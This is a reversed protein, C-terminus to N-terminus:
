PEIVIAGTFMNTIIIDLDTFDIIGDGNLDAYPFGLAAVVDTPMFMFGSLTMMDATEVIGTGTVDGAVLRIERVNERSDNLSLNMPEIGVVVDHVTFDTHGGKSITMTYVGAQVNPITFNQSVQGMGLTGPITYTYERGDSNRTLVITTPNNPNFSVVTGSVDQTIPVYADILVFDTLIGSANGVIEFHLVEYDLTDGVLDRPDFYFVETLSQRASVVGLDLQQIVSGNSSESRVLLVADSAFDSANEVHAEIAVISDEGIRRELSLVLVSEGLTVTTSNDSMDSDSLGVPTIVIDFVTEAGLNAPVNVTFEVMGTTGPRLNAMHTGAPIGNVSVAVNNITVGGLNTVEVSVPLPQGIAIDWPSYIADSVMINVPLSARFSSLDNNEVVHFNEGDYDVVLFASSNNFVINFEGNSEWVGDFHEAFGGTNALVFSESWQGSEQVRALMLGTENSMGPFVVAYNSGNGLIRFGTDPMNNEAFLSSTQGGVTRVRINGNEFWSLVPSGNLTTFQPESVHSNNTLTQINGALNVLQLNRSTVYDFTPDFLNGSDTIFAVQPSGGFFGADIGAVADLNQALILEDGWVGNSLQRAIISSNGNQGFFDNQDNRVWAVFVDQGNVAIAPMSDFVYNFTLMSHDVFSNGDFRAVSIESAAVMDDLESESDLIYKTNHWAVWINNGDTSINPFFDATGDDDVPRPESWTNMNTNFVSYMLSTRNVPGRTGDDSIFVMIRQGNAEAILPATDSFVSGQILRIGNEDLPMFASNGFWQTAHSRSDLTFNGTSLDFQNFDLGRPMTQNRVTVHTNFITWERRWFLARMWFGMRGTYWLQQHNTDIRWNFSQDIAGFVGGGLFRFGIGARATITTTYGIAANPIIRTMNELRINGRYDLSGSLQVQVTIPIAGAWFQGSITPGPISRHIILTGSISAPPQGSAPMVGSVYGAIRVPAPFGLTTNARSVPTFRAENQVRQFATTVPASRVISQLNNFNNRRTNHDVNNWTGSPAGIAVNVRGSEYMVVSPINNLDINFTRGSVFPVGSIPITAVGMSLNRHELTGVTFSRTMMPSQQSLTQDTSFAIARITVPYRITIPGSAIPSSATPTRGDTTFRIQANPINPFTVQTGSNVAGGAHSMNPTPPPPVVTIPINSEASYVTPEYFAVARITVTNNLIIPTNPNFTIGNTWTPLTGDLTYRITAGQLAVFIFQTGPTVRSGPLHNGIPRSPRVLYRVVLEDSPAFGPATTVVSFTTATTIAPTTWPNSVTQATGGNTRVQFQAGPISSSFTVTGGDIVYNNPHSAVPIPAQVEFRFVVEDSPLCNESFMVARVTTNSSVSIPATQGPIFMNGNTETPTTDNTTYRIWVNGADLLRLSDPIVFDVTHVGSPFLHIDVPSGPAAIPVPLQVYYRFTAVASPLHTDHNIARIRLETNRTIRFQAIQPNLSPANTVGLPTPAVLGLTPSSENPESGDLTFHLHTGETFMFEAISAGRMVDSATLPTTLGPAPNVFDLYDNDFTRGQRPGELRAPQRLSFRQSFPAGNREGDYDQDGSEPLFAMATVTVYTGLRLPMLFPGTYEIGSNRTPITGDLTYRVSVGQVDNRSLHITVMSASEGGGTIHGTQTIPVATIATVYPARVRINVPMMVGDPTGDVLSFATANVTVNETISVTGTFIPSDETVPDNNLTYRIVVDTDPHRFRLVEAVQVRSNNPITSVPPPMGQRQPHFLFTTGLALGLGEWGVVDAYSRFFNNQAWLLNLQTNSVDLALLLNDAVNLTQLNLNSSLDIETLQNNPLLLVELLPNNRVNVDFDDGGILLNNSADLTRLLTNYTLDLEVIRTGVVTLEALNAFFGIGELSEIYGLTPLTDGNIEMFWISAVNSWLIPAPEPVAAESRVHALFVPDTFYSTIDRTPVVPGAAFPVFLSLDDRTFRRARTSERQSEGVIEFGPAIQSGHVFAYRWQGIFEDFIVIYGNADETWTFYDDSRQFLAVGTDTFLPADYDLLDEGDVVVDEDAYDDEDEDSYIDYEDDVSEYDDTEDSYVVADEVTIFATVAISGDATQATIFATGESVGTVFGFDDVIAVDENSSSWLIDFIVDTPSTLIYLSEGQGVSLLLTESSLSVSITDDFVEVLVTDYSVGELLTATIIATGTTLASVVGYADVTAVNEDSSTWELQYEVTNEPFLYAVLTESGGVPLSLIDQALWVGVTHEYDEFPNFYYADQSSYQEEYEEYIPAAQVVPMSMPLMPLVMLIALFVSLAKKAITRAVNRNFTRM